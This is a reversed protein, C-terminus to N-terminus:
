EKEQRGPTLEITENVSTKFTFREGSFEEAVTGNRVAQVKRPSWPNVVTCDRGKESRITVGGVEGGKHEASVLFAGCARLTGFRADMDRPWCPFLRIVHSANSGENGSKVM